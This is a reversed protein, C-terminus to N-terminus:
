NIRKPPARPQQRSFIEVILMAGGCDPCTFATPSADDTHDTKVVKNDTAGNNSNPDAHGQSEILKRARELNDQRRSNALLGYHRIWHFKSPLVHILFRRIFEDTNLTM